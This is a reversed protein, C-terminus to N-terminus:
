IDGKQSWCHGCADCSSHKGDKSDSVDYSKCNPCPFVDIQNWVYLFAAAIAVLMVVIVITLIPSM